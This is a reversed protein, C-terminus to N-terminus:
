EAKILQDQKYLIKLTEPLNHGYKAIVNSTKLITERKIKESILNKNLDKKIM